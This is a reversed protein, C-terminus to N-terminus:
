SFEFNNFVNGSYIISRALEMYINVATLEPSRHPGHAKKSWKHAKIGSKATIYLESLEATYIPLIIQIHFDFIM